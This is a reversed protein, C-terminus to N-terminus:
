YGPFAEKRVMEDPQGISKLVSEMDEVLAPPGCIYFLRQMYDPILRKVMSDKIRGTEGRWNQDPASLTHIIRLNENQQCLREFEDRFLIDEQHRSIYLLTIDNDLKMTTCYRLMSRFPTIGIGGSLMAIKEFGPELVFSGYPGEIKIWDSVKLAKLGISFDSGTLRKTFELYNDTPSSSITFHKRNKGMETNITIFMFQGAEYEFSVPRPFMFSIVNYTRYLIESVKTELIM